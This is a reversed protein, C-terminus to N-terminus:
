FRWGYGISIALPDLDVDATAVGAPGADVVVDTSLLYKKIDINFYNNVGLVYDFGFNFAFGVNDKYTIGIADGPKDDFFFTYNIGAGIYPLFNGETNFHYQLTITPPLVKTTGLNVNGLITNVTAVSHETYGLITELAINDTIFYRIDLEPVTDDDVKAKGGISLNSDVDPDLNLVKLGVLWKGASKFQSNEQAYSYNNISGLFTLLNFIILIKLLNNKKM